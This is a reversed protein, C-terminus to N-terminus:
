LFYAIQVIETMDASDANETSNSRQSAKQMVVAPICSL